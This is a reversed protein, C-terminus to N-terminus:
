VRCPAGVQDDFEDGFILYKQDSSLWGQHTFSVADYDLRKLIAIDSKDTVDLIAM